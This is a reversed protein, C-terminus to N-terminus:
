RRAGEILRFRPLATRHTTLDYFVPAPDGEAAAWLRRRGAASIPLLDEGGAELLTDFDEASDRLARPNERDLARNVVAAMPGRALLNIVTTYDAELFDALDLAERLGAEAAMVVVNTILKCAVGAGLPGVRVVEGFEALIPEAVTVAGDGGGLLITLAAEAAYRVGGVLTADVLHTGNPMATSILQLAAPTTTSLVALVAGPRLASLIGNPGLHAAPIDASMVASIVLDADRAADAPDASGIAGQAVLDAMREPVLDYVRVSHGARLLHPVMRSGMDGLGVFGITAM